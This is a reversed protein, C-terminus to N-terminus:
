RRRMAGPRPMPMVCWRGRRGRAMGSIGSSNLMPSPMKGTPGYTFGADFIVRQEAEVDNSVDFAPRIDDPSADLRLRSAGADLQAITGDPDPLYAGAAGNMSSQIFETAYHGPANLDANQVLANGSVTWDPQDRHGNIAATANQEIAVNKSASVVNITPTAVSSTNAADADLVSNKRIVLGDTEGVSIGHVHNNLIVNEEILINRYFMEEGARGIDVEENRMFISQTLDGGGVDLTNGRIIIDTSPTSTGTTWFQIMDPHDGSAKSRAFDHIHNNEILVNRVNSFNMGDSRMSHVDNGTVRVDKSGGVVLARHWTTFENNEIVVNSSGGVRLGKGTAFGDATPDGTDSALEGEFLSNRITIGSSKKVSFPSMWVTGGTYNSDFVVNDFTLNKVERLDIGSFSARDDPDASTITVPSDYIAKVGFTQFTLLDLQGYDGGDLEITDGGTASTLASKLEGANSVSFINAM